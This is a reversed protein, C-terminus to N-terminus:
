GALVTQQGDSRSEHRDQKAGKSADSDGGEGDEAVAEVADGEGIAVAVIEERGEGEM